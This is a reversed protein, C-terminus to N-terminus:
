DCNLALLCGSPEDVVALGFLAEFGEGFEVGMAVFFVSPHSGFVILDAVRDVVFVFVGSFRVHLQEGVFRGEATQEQDCSNL